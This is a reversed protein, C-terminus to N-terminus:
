RKDPGDVRSTLQHKGVDMDMGGAVRRLLANGQQSVTRGPLSASVGVVSGSGRGQGPRDAAGRLRQAETRRRLHVRPPNALLNAFPKNVVEVRQRHPPSEAGRAEGAAAQHGGSLRPLRPHRHRRLWLRLCWRRLPWRRRWLWVRRDHYQLWQRWGSSRLLRSYLPCPPSCPRCRRSRAPCIPKSHM